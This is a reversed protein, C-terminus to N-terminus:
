MKKIKKGATCFAHRDVWYPEKDLMDWARKKDVRGAKVYARKLIRKQVKVYRNADTCLFAAEYKPVTPHREMFPDVAQFIYFDSEHCDDTNFRETIQAPGSMNRAGPRILTYEQGPSWTVHRSAVPKCAPKETTQKSSPKGLHANIDFVFKDLYLLLAEKSM